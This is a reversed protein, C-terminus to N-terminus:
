ILSLLKELAARAAAARIAARDGTLTLLDSTVGEPHAIALWVTGVPKAASGGGPGAVGTIAIAFDTTLVRKAGLAMAECVERSVAGHNTILEPPVGLINTKISNSYAIIGGAFVTSSGPVHTLLTAVLGGTCSEATAVTKGYEQCEKLVANLLPSFITPDLQLM